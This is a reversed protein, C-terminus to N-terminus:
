LGSNLTQEVRGAFGRRWVLYNLAFLIVIFLYTGYDMRSAIVHIGAFLGLVVMMGFLKATTGGGQVKQFPEAFPMNRGLLKYSIYTYLFLSLLVAILDPIIRTGFVSVFVVAEFLYLPIFLRSLFAKLTGKYIDNMDKLPIAQFIWSGKYNGSYKLMMVVTPIMAGCFYIFLYSRGSSIEALSNGTSLSTLIFIFPIILSLGLSPYVKLKFERERSMMVSAFHFFVAEDKNGCIWRGIINQLTVLRRKGAEGQEALKQLHHEFLPMLRIYIVLSVIPVILALLTFALYHGTVQRNLLMEYPGAFWVPPLLYQWWAPEFSLSLSSFSFLRFVLQYGVTIVVTLGIQVYNIMDKLTEGNFFRLILFYLLATLTIVLFDLWIIEVLYILFFAPGQKFLSALLSPLTLAATVLTMYVLIHIVKAMNMTRAHVPRSLLLSKDRIDLLVASFDSILSTSVMFFIVSFVISMKFLDNGEMLVFPILVLGVLGYLWLSSIFLNDSDKKHAAITPPRRGDMTLKIQLILRLQPYQIGMKELPTRFRDLLKLTRFEKM